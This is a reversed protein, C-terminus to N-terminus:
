KSVEYIDSFTEFNFNKGYIYLVYVFFVFISNLINIQFNWLHLNNNEM